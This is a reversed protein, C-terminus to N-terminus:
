FGFCWEKSFLLVCSSSQFHTFFCSIDLSFSKFVELFVPSNNSLVVKLNKKPFTHIRPLLIFLFSPPKLKKCLVTQGTHELQNLEPQSTGIGDHKKQQLIGCKGIKHCQWNLKSLLLLFMANCEYLLRIKKTLLCVCVVDQMREEPEACVPLKSHCCSFLDLMLVNSRGSIWTM